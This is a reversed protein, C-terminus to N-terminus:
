SMSSDLQNVQSKVYAAVKGVPVSSQVCVCVRVTNANQRDKLVSDYDHQGVEQNNHPDM